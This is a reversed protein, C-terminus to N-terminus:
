TAYDIEIKAESLSCDLLHGGTTRAQDIIHFHYTPSNLVDAAKPTYFGVLVGSFNRHEFLAATAEKLAVYPQQQEYFSRFKVYSFTATVKLAAFRNKDLLSDLYLELQELTRINQKLGIVVESRFFKVAAFPIKRKANLMAAKGSSPITYLKGDILVLEGRLGEESGVGFDGHKKLDAATATGDYQGLYIASNLSIYHLTDAPQATGTLCSLVGYLILLRTKM